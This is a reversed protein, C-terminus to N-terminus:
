GEKGGVLKCDAMLNSKSVFHPDVQPRQRSIVEIM